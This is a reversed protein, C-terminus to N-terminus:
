TCNSFDGMAVGHAVLFLELELYDDVPPHPVRFNILVVLLDSFWRVLLVVVFVLACCLHM